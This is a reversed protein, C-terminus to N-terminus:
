TTLSDASPSTLLDTVEKLRTKVAVNPYIDNAIQYYQQATVLDNEEQAKIGALKYFKAKLETPVVWSGAEIRDFATYFHSFVVSDEKHGREAHYFIERSAVSEANSKFITNTQGTEVAYDTLKFLWDWEGVDAAWVINFFLVDNNHREGKAIWDTLYERYVNLLRAKEAKHKDGNSDPTNKLRQYDSFVLQQLVGYERSVPIQTMGVATTKKVVEVTSEPKSWKPKNIKVNM